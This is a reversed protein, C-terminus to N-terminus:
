VRTVRLWGRASAPDAFYSTVVSGPVSLAALKTVGTHDASLCWSQM